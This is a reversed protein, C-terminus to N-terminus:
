RPLWTRPGRVKPRRQNVARGRPPRCPQLSFHAQKAPTQAIADSLRFVRRFHRSGDRPRDRDPLPRFPAILSGLRALSADNQNVPHGTQIADHNVAQSEKWGASTQESSLNAFGLDWEAKESADDTTPVPVVRMVL